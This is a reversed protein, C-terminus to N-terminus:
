AVSAARAASRNPKSSAPSASITENVTTALSGDRATIRRIPIVCSV